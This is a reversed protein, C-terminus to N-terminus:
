GAQAHTVKNPLALGAKVWRHYFQELGLGNTFYPVGAYPDAKYDLTALAKLTKDRDLYARADAGKWDKSHAEGPQVEEHIQPAQYFELYEIPTLAAQLEGLQSM